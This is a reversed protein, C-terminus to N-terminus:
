KAAMLIHYLFRDTKEFGRSASWTRTGNRGSYFDSIGPVLVSFSRFWFSFFFITFTLFRFHRTFAQCKRKKLM